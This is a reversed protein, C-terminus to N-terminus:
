EREHSELKKIKPVGGYLGSRFRKELKGADNSRYGKSSILPYLISNETHTKEVIYIEKASLVDSDMLGADHTNVILQATSDHESKFIEIILRSMDQHLSSGFEDIYLVLNNDLAEIIPMIMDFFNNTGASEDDGMDFMEYDIINGDDDRVAHKTKVSTFRKARLKNKEEERFPLANILDDPFDRDEIDFDRIWLDARKLYELVRQKSQPNDRIVKSGWGKLGGDGITLVRFSQIMAFVKRAYENNNEYAKTILLTSKRTLGFLQKGFGYKSASANLDDNQRTFIIKPRNSSLDVLEEFVISSADVSFTYKYAESGDGFEVTFVSPKTRTEVNLKFPEYPIESIDANASNAVFWRVFKLSRALNTKGSANAGYIAVVRNNNFIIKQENKISRFNRVAFYRLQYVDTEM